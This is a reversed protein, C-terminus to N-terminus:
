RASQKRCPSSVFTPFRHSSYIFLRLNTQRLFTKQSTAVREQCCYVNCSLSVIFVVSVIGATTSVCSCASKSAMIRCARSPVGSSGSTDLRTWSRDLADGLFDTADVPLKVFLNEILEQSARSSTHFVDKINGDGNAPDRYDRQCLFGRTQTVVVLEESVNLSLIGESPM